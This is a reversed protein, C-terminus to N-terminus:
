LGLMSGVIADRMRSSALRDLVAVVKQQWGCHYRAKPRRAVLARHIVAAVAGAPAARTLMRRNLAKFRQVAVEYRVRGEPPVLRLGDELARDYSALQQDPDEWRTMGPEVISVRVGARRLEVRLVDTVGELAFKAGFSAGLLPMPLRGVGVNVIRGQAVRLLPLLARTTLITGFVTVRFAAELDERTVYEMPVGRAAGAANNVLGFLGHGGVMAGIENAANQISEDSGIDLITSTLWGQAESELRDGDARNRVGAIVAMGAAALRLATARGIGRSTGTILVFRGEM